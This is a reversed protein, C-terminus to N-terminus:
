ISVKVVSMFTNLSGTVGTPSGSSNAFGGITQGAGCQILDSATSTYAISTTSAAAILNGVSVHSGGLYIHAQIWAGDVTVTFTVAVNVLYLGEEPTTYLGGSYGSRNDFTVTDFSVNTPTGGGSYSFAANRYVRCAPAGASRLGLYPRKDTINANVISTANAAVAVQALVV